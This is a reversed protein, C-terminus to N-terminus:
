ACNAESEAAFFALNEEFTAMGIVKAVKPLYTGNVRKKQVTM